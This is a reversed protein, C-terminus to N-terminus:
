HLRRLKGTVNPSGNVLEQFQVEDSSIRAVTAKLNDLCLTQGFYLREDFTAGDASNSAFSLKAGCPYRLYQVMGSKESPMIDLYVTYVYPENAGRSETVTGAWRGAISGADAANGVNAVTAAAVVVSAFVLKKM